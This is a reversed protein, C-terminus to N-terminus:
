LPMLYFLGTDAAWEQLIQVDAMVNDMVLNIGVSIKLYDHAFNNLETPYRAPFINM